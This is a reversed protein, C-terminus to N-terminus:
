LVVKAAGLKEWVVVQVTVALADSVPYRFPWAVACILTEGLELETLLGLKLELALGLVLVLNKLRFM